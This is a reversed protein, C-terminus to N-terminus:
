VARAATACSSTRISGRPATSRMRLRAAPEVRSSSKSAAAAAHARCSALAATPQSRSWGASSSLGRRVDVIPNSTAWVRGSRATATTSISGSPRSRQNNNDVMAWVHTATSVFAAIAHAPCSGAPSCRSAANAPTSVPIPIGCRRRTAPTGPVRLPLERVRPPAPAATVIVSAFAGAKVAQSAVCVGPM